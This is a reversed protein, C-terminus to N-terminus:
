KNSFNEADWVYKYEGRKNAGWEMDPNTITPDGSGTLMLSEPEFAIATTTPQKYNLKEKNISNENAMKAIIAERNGGNPM